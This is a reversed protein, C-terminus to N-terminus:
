LLPTYCLNINQDFSNLYVFNLYDPADKFYLDKLPHIDLVNSYWGGLIETDICDAAVPHSIPIIIGSDILLQEAKALKKNRDVPDRLHAAEHILQEFTDNTWNTERLTSEKRFLELFALPDSFDGIWTYTFIDAEITDFSELYTEPNCLIVEVNVHTKKLGTKIIEADRKVTEYNPIAITLHLEDEKSYGATQLMELALDPDCDTLGIIDPYNPLPLILSTAAFFNGARLKSWPIATLVANRLRPDDWPKRQESFFMFETGFQASVILMKQNYLLDALFNSKVWQTKGTNFAWTAEKADEMGVFEIREIQVNEADHYQKNKTLVTKTPTKSELVYAGSFLNNDSSIVAFAHHALISAFHPTPEKLTIVLTLNNRVQIKVTDSNAKGTRYDNAGEICSLLSAFPAKTKPSIVTLLSQKVEHATIPSGNNFTSNPRIYFTWTKRDRSIKYSEAIATEPEATTANLTFLGEYLGNLVQADSSYNATHPNLNYDRPFGMIVLTKPNPSVLQGKTNQAFGLFIAVCATIFLTLIKKNM